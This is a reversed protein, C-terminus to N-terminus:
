LNYPAALQQGVQDLKNDAILLLFCHNIGM